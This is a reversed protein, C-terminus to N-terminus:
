WEHGRTVDFICASCVALIHVFEFFNKPSFQLFRTYKLNLQTAYKLVRTIQYDHMTKHALDSYNNLPWYCKLCM